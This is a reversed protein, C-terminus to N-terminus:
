NADLSMRMRIFVLAASTERMLEKGKNEHHVLYLSLTKNSKLAVCHYDTRCPKWICLQKVDTKKFSPDNIEDGNKKM